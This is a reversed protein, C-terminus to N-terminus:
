LAGGADIGGMGGATRQPQMAAECFGTLRALLAVEPTTCIWAEEPFIGDAM